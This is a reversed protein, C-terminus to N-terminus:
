RAPTRRSGTAWAPWTPQPLPMLDMSPLSMSPPTLKPAKPEEEEVNPTSVPDAVNLGPGTQGERALSDPHRRSCDPERKSRIRVPSSM